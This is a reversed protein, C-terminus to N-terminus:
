PQKPYGKKQDMEYLIRVAECGAHTMNAIWQESHDFGAQPDFHGTEGTVELMNDLVTAIGGARLGWLRADGSGRCEYSQSGRLSTEM